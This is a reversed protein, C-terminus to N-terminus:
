GTFFIHVQSDTDADPNKSQRRRGSEAVARRRSHSGV